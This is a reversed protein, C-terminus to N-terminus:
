IFMIVIGSIILRFFCVCLFSQFLLLATCHVFVSSSFHVLMLFRHFSSQHRLQNSPFSPSEETGRRKIHQIKKINQKMRKTWWEYSMSSLSSPSSSSSSSSSTNYFTPSIIESHSLSEAPHSCCCCYRGCRRCLGVYVWMYFSLSRPKITFCSVIEMNYM